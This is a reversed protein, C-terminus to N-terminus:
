ITSSATSLGAAPAQGVKTHAETGVTYHNIWSEDDASPFILRLRSDIESRLVAEVKGAERYERCRRITEKAQALDTTM